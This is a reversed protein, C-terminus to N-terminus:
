PGSPATFDTDDIATAMFVNEMRTNPVFGIDATQHWRIDAFGRVIKSGTKGEPGLQLFCAYIHLIPSIYM